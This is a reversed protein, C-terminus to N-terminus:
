ELVGEESSVSSISCVIRYFMYVFIFIKIDYCVFVHCKVASLVIM